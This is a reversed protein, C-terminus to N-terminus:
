GRCTKRLANPDEALVREPTVVRHQCACQREDTARRAIADACHGPAHGPTRCGQCIM